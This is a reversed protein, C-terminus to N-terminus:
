YREILHPSSELLVEEQNPPSAPLVPLNTVTILRVRRQIGLYTWVWRLMVLLRNQFTVLYFIHIGLWLLWAIPGSLKLSGLQVISFGRGVTALSGKDRYCFAPFLQRMQPNRICLDLLRAVYRGQQMAVPAVGPLPKGKYLCSAVDGIVFINPHNPVSLDKQVAVRGARDAEEANLWHAVPTAKVGATWFVNASAIREEGIMVGHEDIDTVRKGTHIEVGIKNLKRYASSALEPSFTALIRQGSEVLIIRALSPDIHRFEKKLVRHAVETIDGALEVGTPGAGVIVFTLLSRVREPDTELEAQEFALLMKQRVARADEITKLGPAVTRWDDHGFYNECTGTAIILYDYPIVHDRMSQDRALVRQHETNVGTVEAMFVDTNDQRSLIHRIPASIEGPSLTATAVQYLLPQFLHHNHRDIVTVHAPTQGLHLAAQLGGFGGGIIVIRPVDACMPSNAALSLTIADLDEFRTDIFGPKVFQGTLAQRASGISADTVGHNLRFNNQGGLLGKGEQSDYM